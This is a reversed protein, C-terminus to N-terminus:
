ATNLFTGGASKQTKPKGTQLAQAPKDKEDKKQYLVLLLV